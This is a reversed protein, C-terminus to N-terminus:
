ALVEEGARGSVRATEEPGVDIGEAGEADGGEPGRSAAAALARAGECLRESAARLEAVLAALERVLADEAM